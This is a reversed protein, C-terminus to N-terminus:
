RSVQVDARVAREAGRLPVDAASGARARAGLCVCRETNGAPRWRRRCRRRVRVERGARLMFPGMAQVFPEDRNTTAIALEAEVLAVGKEAKKIEEQVLTVCARAGHICLCLLMVVLGALRM